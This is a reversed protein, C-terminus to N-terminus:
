NLPSQDRVRTYCVIFYVFGMFVVFLFINCVAVKGLSVRVINIAMVAEFNIQMINPICFLHFINMMISKFYVDFYTLYTNANKRARQKKIM